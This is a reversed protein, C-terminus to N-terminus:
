FHLGGMCTEAAHKAGSTDPQASQVLEAIHTPWRTLDDALLRFGHLVAHVPPTLCVRKGQDCKNKLLIQLV